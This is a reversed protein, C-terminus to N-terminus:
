QRDYPNHCRNLSSTSVFVSSSVESYAHKYIHASELSEKLYEIHGMKEGITFTLRRQGLSSFSRCVLEMERISWDSQEQQM